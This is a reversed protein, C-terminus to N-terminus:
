SPLNTVGLKQLCERLEAIRAELAEVKQVCAAIEGETPLPSRDSTMDSLLRGDEGVRLAHPSGYAGALRQALGDRRKTL